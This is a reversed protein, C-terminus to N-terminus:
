RFLSGSRQSTPQPRFPHDKLAEVDPEIGLGPADPLHFFGDILQIPASSLRDRITREDEMQELVLFNPISAALHMSAVTCLPGGPNHPAVNIYYTDAMAAIRRVETFGGAHMLDPQIVQCGGEELLERYEWRSLLREGTAIPVPLTRQLKAMAGANEFPIPEEFWAPRFPLLEAAARQATRHSLYESCEIYIEADDGAGDRAAEMLEAARRIAVADNSQLQEYDFPNWKFGRFGRRVAEQAGAHAEQPTKVGSLWHSAYVPIKTRYPGGFLRYIPV